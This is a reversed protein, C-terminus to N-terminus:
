NRKQKRIKEILVAKLEEESKYIKSLSIGKIFTIQRDAYRKTEKIIEERTKELSLGNENM